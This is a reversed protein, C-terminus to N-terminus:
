NSSSATSDNVVVVRIESGDYVAYKGEVIVTQGPSLPSDLVEARDQVIRGLRVPHKKATKGDTAYLYTEAETQIISEWPVTPANEHVETVLRARAFMGPNLIKESNDVRAKVLLTRTDVSVEPDIFFIEGNFKKDPYADVVLHVNQGPLLRQKYKEAVKFSIELANLDVISVVPDGIRLYHGVSFTRPGAVGNFPARILTDALSEKQQTLSAQTQTIQSKIEDIETQLNDYMEKSVLNQAVLSSNRELSRLKNSLRIEFQDIRATLNKIEAKIKVDDVRVQIDDKKVSKGEEFLIDVVRGQTKSRLTVEQSATLTGVQELVYEIRMPTVTGTTVPVASSVPKTNLSANDSKTRYLLMVGFILVVCIGIILIKRKM